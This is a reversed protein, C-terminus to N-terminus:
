CLRQTLAVTTRAGNVLSKLLKAAEVLLAAEGVQNIKHLFFGGRGYSATM